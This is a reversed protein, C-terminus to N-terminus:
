PRSIGDRSLNKLLDFEVNRDNPTPNFYHTITPFEGYIKGYHASEIIGEEGVKTRVRFYYNRNRNFTNEPKSEPGSRSSKFRWERVYGSEPALYDSKYLSVINSNWLNGAETIYFAVLGDMDNSFEINLRFDRYFAKEYNYTGSFILDPTDGKGFPTTFDGKVLDYGIPKNPNQEIFTKIEDQRLVHMAIPNKIERLELTLDQDGNGTRHKSDYYGQKTILIGQGHLGRDTLDIKGEEDTLLDYSNGGGHFNMEVRADEVPNQNQDVVKLKFKIVLGGCNAIIPLLLLLLFTTSLLTPKM